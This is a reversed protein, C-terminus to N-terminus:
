LLSRQGLEGNPNKDLSSRALRFVAELTKIGIGNVRALQNLQVIDPSQMADVVKAVYNRRLNTTELIREIDQSLLWEKAKEYLDDKANADYKYIEIEIDAKGLYTTMIDLSTEQAIGGKDAGLLPFAISNVGQERYTELFKELGLHLYEFKSPNKWHKKTPFNLVWRDSTRHIWLLGINIKKQACLDVYKDYMEPYRLRCELAIGAGMVGVCNITNVLTQCQSTFINGKIIKISM